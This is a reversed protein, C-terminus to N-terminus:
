KVIVQFVCTPTIWDFKYNIINKEPVITNLNNLLEPMKNLLNALISYNINVTTFTENFILLSSLIFKFNEFDLFYFLNLLEFPLYLGFTIESNFKIFEIYVSKFSLKMEYKTKPRFIKSRETEKTEFTSEVGSKLWQVNRNLIEVLDDQSYKKITEMNVKIEKLSNDIDWIIESYIPNKFM